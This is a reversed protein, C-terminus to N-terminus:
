VGMLATHNETMTAERNPRGDRPFAVANEAIVETAVMPKYREYPIGITQLNNFRLCNLCPIHSKSSFIGYFDLNM